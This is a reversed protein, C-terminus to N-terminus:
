LFLVLIVCILWKEEQDVQRRNLSIPSINCMDVM